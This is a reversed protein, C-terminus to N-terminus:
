DCTNAAVVYRATQAVDGYVTYGTSTASQQVVALVVSSSGYGGRPDLLAWKAKVCRTFDYPALKSTGSGVPVTKMLADDTSACSVLACAVIGAAWAKALTTKM